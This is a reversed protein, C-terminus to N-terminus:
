RTCRKVAVVADRGPHVAARRACAHCALLVGYNHNRDRDEKNLYYYLLGGSAALLSLAMQVIASATVIESSSM